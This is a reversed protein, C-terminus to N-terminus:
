EEEHRCNECYDYYADIWYKLDARALRVERVISWLKAGEELDNETLGWDLGELLGGEWDVKNIFETETM